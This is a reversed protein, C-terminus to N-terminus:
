KAGDKQERIIQLTFECLYDVMDEGICVSRSYRELAEPKNAFRKRLKNIEVEYREDKVSRVVACVETKRDIVSSICRKSWLYYDDFEMDLYTQPDTSGQRLPEPAKTEAPTVITSKDAMQKQRALDQETIPRESKRRVAEILGDRVHGAHAEAAAACDDNDSLAEITDYDNAKHAAALDAHCQELTSKALQPDDQYPPKPSCATLTLGTLALLIGIRM